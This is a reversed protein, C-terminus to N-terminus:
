TFCFVSKQILADAQAPRRTRAPAEADAWVFDGPDGALEEFGAAFALDVVAFVAAGAFAGAAFAGTAFAVDRGGAYEAARASVRLAFSARARATDVARSIASM